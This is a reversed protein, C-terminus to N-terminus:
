GSINRTFLMSGIEILNKEKVKLHQLSLAISIGNNTLVRTNQSAAFEELSKLLFEFNLKQEDLLMKYGNRGMQLLTIFLDLIPSM